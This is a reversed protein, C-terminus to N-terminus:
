SCGTTRPSPTAPCESGDPGPSLGQPCLSSHYRRGLNYLCLAHCNSSSTTTAVIHPCHSFRHGLGTTRKPSHHDERFGERHPSLNSSCILTHWSTWRSLGLCSRASIDRLYFDSCPYFCLFAPPKGLQGLPLFM